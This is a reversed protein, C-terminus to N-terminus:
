KLNEILRQAQKAFVVITLSWYWVSHWLICSVALFKVLVQLWNRCFFFLLFSIVRIIWKYLFSSWFLFLKRYRVHLYRDNSLEHLCWTMVINYKLGLLPLINWKTITYDCSPFLVKGDMAWVVAVHVQHCM